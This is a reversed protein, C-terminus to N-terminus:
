IMTGQKGIKNLSHYYGVKNKNTKLQKWKNGRKKWENENTKMLKWKKERM